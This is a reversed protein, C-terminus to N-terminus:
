QVIVMWSVGFRDNAMGFNSSFFTKSLPMTVKGGESIAAFLKQADADTKVVLTLGFGDFKSETDCRGDSVLLVAGDISLSGHMIKDAMEPKMGPMPEPCDKFRMLMNVKAGLAKKYFEIAEEARGNFHVYPQLQMTPEKAPSQPITTPSAPFRDM